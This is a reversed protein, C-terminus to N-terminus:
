AEDVDNPYACGVEVRDLEVRIGPLEGHAPRSTLLATLARRLGEEDGEPHVGHLRAPRPDRALFWGPSWSGALRGAVVAVADVVTCRFTIRVPFHAARDATSLQWEACVPVGPRVDVVSVAVPREDPGTRVLVEGEGAALPGRRERWASWRFAPRLERHRVVPYRGTM